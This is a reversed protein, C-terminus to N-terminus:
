GPRRPPATDDARSSRGSSGWGRALVGRPRGALLGRRGPHHPRGAGVLMLTPARASSAAGLLPPYPDPELLVPMTLGLDAMLARAAAPTTRCCRGRRVRRRAPAPLPPRRVAPHPAHDRLGPPRHVILAPGESWSMTLPRQVGDLDPCRSADPFPEAAVWRFARDRTWSTSACAREPDRGADHGRDLLEQVARRGREGCDVTMDNVWMGVFRDAIEPDMGRAFSM